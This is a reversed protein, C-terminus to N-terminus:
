LCKYGYCEIFLKRGVYEYFSGRYYENWYSVMRDYSRLFSNINLVCFSKIEKCDKDKLYYYILELIEVVYEDSLKIIYPFIWETYNMKLIEHIHKERIYGNTSRSLFAHFIMKQTYTLESPIKINEVNYVRYPFQIEEGSLLKYKCFSGCIFINNPIYQSVVIADKEFNKPFSNILIKDNFYKM